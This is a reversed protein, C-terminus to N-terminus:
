DSSEPPQAGGRMTRIWKAIDNLAASLFLVMLIPTGILNIWQWLELEASGGGTSGHRPVIALIALYVATLCLM